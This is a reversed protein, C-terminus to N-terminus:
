VISKGQKNKFWRHLFDLDFTVISRKCTFDVILKELDDLTSAQKLKNEINSNIKQIDKAGLYLEIMIQMAPGMVLVFFSILNAASDNSILLFVGIVVILLIFNSIAISQNKFRKDYSINQLMCKRISWFLDDNEDVNEYWNMVGRIEDEGSNKTYTSINKAKDQLLNDFYTDLPPLKEIFGFVYKDFKEKLFASEECKRRSIRNLHISFVFVLAAFLILFRNSSLDLYLYTLACLIINLVLVFNTIKASRILLFKSLGQYQLTIKENQRLNIQNANSM